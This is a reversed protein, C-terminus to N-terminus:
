GKHFIDYHIDQQSPRIKANDEDNQRIISELEVAKAELKINKDKLVTNESKLVANESELLSMKEEFDTAQDVLRERLITSLPIEKMIDTIVGM